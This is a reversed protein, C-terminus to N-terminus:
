HAKSDNTPLLLNKKKRLLSKMGIYYLNMTLNVKIFYKYTKIINQRLTTFNKVKDHM